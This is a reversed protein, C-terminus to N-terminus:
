LPRVKIQQYWREQDQDPVVLAPDAKVRCLRSRFPLALTLVAESAGGRWPVVGCRLHCAVDAHRTRHPLPAGNVGFYEGESPPSDGRRRRGREGPLLWAALANGATAVRQCWGACEGRESPVRSLQSGARLGRWGGQCPLPRGRRAPLCTESIIPQTQHARAAHPLSRTRAVEDVEWLAIVSRGSPLGPMILNLVAVLQGGAPAHDPQALDVLHRKAWRQDSRIRLAGDPLRRCLAARSPMVGCILPCLGVHGPRLRSAGDANVGFHEGEGPPSDGPHRLPPRAHPLLPPPQPHPM